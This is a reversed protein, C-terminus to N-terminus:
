STSKAKRKKAREHAAKISKLRDESELEKQEPTTGSKSAFEDAEADETEMLKRVYSNKYQVSEFQDVAENGEDKDAKAKKKQSEAKKTKSRKLLAKAIGKVAVILCHQPDKQTEKMEIVGKVVKRKKKKEPQFSSGGGASEIIERSKNM